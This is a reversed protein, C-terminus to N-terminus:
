IWILVLELWVRGVFCWHIWNTFSSKCIGYILYGNFRIKSDQFDTVNGIKSFIKM